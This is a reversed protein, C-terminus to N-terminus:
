GEIQEPLQEILEAYDELEGVDLDDPKELDAEQFEEEWTEKWSQYTQGKEGDQWKESRGDFYDQMEQTIENKFSNADAIAENHATLSTEVKEWAAAMAENFEDVIKNLDEFTRRLRSAVEDRRSLEAKSLKTM